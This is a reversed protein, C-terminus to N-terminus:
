VMVTAKLGDEQRCYMIHMYRLGLGEAAAGINGHALADLLVRCEEPTLTPNAGEMFRRGVQVVQNGDASESTWNYVDTYEVM